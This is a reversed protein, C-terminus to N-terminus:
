KSAGHVAKWDDEHLVFLAPRRINGGRGSQKVVVVGVKERAKGQHHAAIALTTLASLSLSRVLKCQAVFLPGEADIEEGSNAWFRKGGIAAGIEREFKKWGKDAM